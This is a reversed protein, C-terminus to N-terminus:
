SQMPSNRISQAEQCALCSSVSKRIEENIRPWFVTDRALQISAEMGSHGAHLRKLIDTRLKKPVIVRNGKYFIGEQMVIDEQYKAYQKLEDDEEAVKAPWGNLLFLGVKQLTNDVRTAERINMLRENSISLSTTPNLEEIEKLFCNIEEIQYVEYKSLTGTLKNEPNRSLPDALYLQTGPVYQIRLKYRQLALMMRQLRKPAQLLPKKFITILPKHDTHIIIEKQGCLYQDFRRCGFVIALTEKEIQAYEREAETLSRSAYAVPQGAQMLAVGLGMSSADCQLIIPEDLNFYKLVPAKTIMAKLSNFVNLHKRTWNWPVKDHTLERLPESVASLNPLFKNLYNVMGLFCQLERKNSPVTMEKIASVKSPDAQLGESTLLHGYYTVETQLLKTKNPNLTLGVSRLRKLLNELNENHNQIAEEMNQGKGYVLFDDAMVEVGELGVIIEHQTKQFIEPAPAIGFPVRLWCYRGWPTWFTTLLQSKRELPLQWFGNRADFTSFVKAQKLEPLIEDITPIQYNTRRLAQNLELPDICVRLKSDKKEVLVVNSTWATPEEVKRIIEMKELEDLTTKFNERLAIPVRRPVQVKPMITEDIVLTVEKKLKGIGTFVDKYTKLLEEARNKGVQVDNEVKLENVTQCIEILQLKRCANASLLPDHYGEVIQFVLKYMKGNHICNLVAQGSPIIVNGGFCRLQVNSEQIEDVSGIKKYNEMGMVNCSAGTDLQCIVDKHIGNVDFTLVTNLSRKHETNINYIYEDSIPQSEIQKVDKKKDDKSRSLSRKTKCVVAFHDFKGCKNCKKGKAPCQGRDHKSGCYWCSWSKRSKSRSRRTNRKEFVKVENIEETREDKLNKMQKRSVETLRIIDIAESLTIKKDSWLKQSVNMDRISVIIKDLLLEDQMAGYECNKILKRLRNIYTDIDEDMEQKALNFIAREYRKNTQPALFKELVDFIGKVTKKEEATVPWNQYLKFCDSGIASLLVAVQRKEDEKELASAVIYVEWNEKFLRLNEIIDGNKVNIPMPLPINLVAQNM